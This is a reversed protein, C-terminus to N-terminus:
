GETDRGRPGRADIERRRAILEDLYNLVQSGMPAQVENMKANTGPMVVETQSKFGFNKM